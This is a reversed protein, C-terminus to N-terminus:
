WGSMFAICETQIELGAVIKKNQESLCLKEECHQNEDARHGLYDTKWAKDSSPFLSSWLVLVFVVIFLAPTIFIFLTLILSILLWSLTSSISFLVQIWTTKSAVTSVLRLPEALITEIINIEASLDSILNQFITSLKKVNGLLRLEDAGVLRTRLM